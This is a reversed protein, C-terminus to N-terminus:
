LNERSPARNLKKIMNKQHRRYLWKLSECIIYVILATLIIELTGTSTDAAKAGNATEAIITEESSFWNGM